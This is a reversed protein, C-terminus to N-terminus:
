RYAQLVEREEQNGVDAVDTCCIADLISIKRDDVHRVVTVICSRELAETAKRLKVYFKNGSNEFRCCLRGSAHIVAPNTSSGLFCCPENNM